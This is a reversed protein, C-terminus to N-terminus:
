NKLKGKSDIRIDKFYICPVIAGNPLISFKYNGAPCIYPKNEIKEPLSNYVKMKYIESLRKIKRSVDEIEKYSLVENLIKRGEGTPIFFGFSLGYVKLEKGLIFFKELYKINSRMLVFSLVVKIGNDVMTKINKIVKDFDGGRIKMYIEKDHADLSVQVEDFKKLLYLRYDDLLSGNTSIKLSLVNYRDRICM